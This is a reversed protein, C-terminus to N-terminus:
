PSPPLVQVSKAPPTYGIGKGHVVYNHLGGDPTVVDINAGAATAKSGEAASEVVTYGVPLHLGYVTPGGATAAATQAKAANTIATTDTQIASSEAAQAATIQSLQGEGTAYEQQGAASITPATTDPPAYGAATPASSSSTGSSSAAAANKRKIYVFTGVGAVGIVAAWKAWPPYRRPAPTPATM